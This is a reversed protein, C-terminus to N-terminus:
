APMAKVSISGRRVQMMASIGQDLRLLPQDSKVAVQFSAQLNDTKQSAAVVTM